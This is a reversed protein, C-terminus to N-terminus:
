TDRFRAQNPDKAGRSARNEPLGMGWLQGGGLGWPFSGTLFSGQFDHSGPWAPSPVCKFHRSLSVNLPGPGPPLVLQAQPDQFIQTHSGRAGAASPPPSSFFSSVLSSHQRTGDNRRRGAQHAYKHTYKRRKLRGMSTVRNSDMWARSDVGHDQNEM